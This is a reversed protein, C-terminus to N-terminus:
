VARLLAFRLKPREAVVRFRVLYIWFSRTAKPWLESGCVADSLPAEVEWDCSYVTSLAGLFLPAVEISVKFGVCCRATSRLAELWLKPGYVSDRFPPARTRDFSAVSCLMAM